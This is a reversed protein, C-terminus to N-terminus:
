NFLDSVSNSNSIRRIAEAMLPAISLVEIKGDPLIRGVASKISHSGLDFAVQIKNRM